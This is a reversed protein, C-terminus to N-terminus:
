KDLVNEHGSNKEKKIALENLAAKAEQANKVSQGSAILSLADVSVNGEHLKLAEDSPVRPVLPLEQESAKDESLIEATTCHIDESTNNMPKQLKVILCPSWPFEENFVKKQILNQWQRLPLMCLRDTYTDSREPPPLDALCHFQLM